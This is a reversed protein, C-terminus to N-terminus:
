SANGANGARKQARSKPSIMTDSPKSNSTPPPTFSVSPSRQSSQPVGHPFSSSQLSYHYAVSSFSVSSSNAVAASPQNPALNSAALMSLWILSSNRKSQRWTAANILVVWAAVPFARGPLQVCRNPSIAFASSGRPYAPYGKPYASHRNM